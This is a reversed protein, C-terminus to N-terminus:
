RNKDGNKPKHARFTIGLTGFHEASSEQPAGDYVAKRWTIKFGTFGAQKVADRLAHELLAGAICGTWLEPNQKSQDPVPMQVIIDAIQLWGGPRLVRYMERLAAPKDPVLNLMGNSIVVDAWGDPIPLNEAVGYRFEVSRLGSEFASRRAKNLMAPTMDVGIVKGGPYVLKGAILSDMGAGSGIDAVKWGPRLRRMRFPNGTGAFSEIARGPIGALLEPDYKLMRTLPRGTHFHFGREPEEAVLRYEELIAEHLREPGAYEEVGKERNVTALQM